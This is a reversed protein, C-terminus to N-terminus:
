DNIRFLNLLRPLKSRFAFSANSHPSIRNAVSCLSLQTAIETLSLPHPMRYLEHFEEETGEFGGFLPIFDAEKLALHDDFGWSSNFHFTL